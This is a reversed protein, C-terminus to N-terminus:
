YDKIPLGLLEIAEHLGAREGRRYMRNEVTEGGGDSMKVRADVSRYIDQLELVKDLSITLIITHQATNQVAKGTGM